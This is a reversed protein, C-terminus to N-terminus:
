SPPRWGTWVSGRPRSRAGGASVPPRPAVPQRPKQEPLVHRQGHQEPQDGPAPRPQQGRGPRRAVRGRGLDAPHERLPQGPPEVVIRSWDGAELADAPIRFQIMGGDAFEFGLEDDWSIHLLLVTGPEPM